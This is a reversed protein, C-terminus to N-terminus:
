YVLKFSPPMVEFVNHFGRPNGTSAFSKFVKDGLEVLSVGVILLALMALLNERLIQCKVWNKSGTSKGAAGGHLLGIM